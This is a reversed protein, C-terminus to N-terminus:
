VENFLNKQIWSLETTYRQAVPQIIPPELGLLPQSNKEDGRWSRSQSGCLRRDLPPLVEPAHLQGNVEM